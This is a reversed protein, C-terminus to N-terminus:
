GGPMIPLIAIEDGEKLDARIGGLLDIHRRNKLIIVNPRLKGSEDFIKQRCEHSDCLSNLLDVINAPEGLEVDFKDKHFVERFSAFFKVKIKLIKWGGKVAIRVGQTGKLRLRTLRPM